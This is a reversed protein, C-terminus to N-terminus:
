LNFRDSSWRAVNNEIYEGIKNLDDFGRIIHDHYRPQWAFPINNRHAFRTVASKLSAIYSGLLTPVHRAMDAPEPPIDSTKKPQTESVARTGVTVIAHMHNPMVVFLPIDIHEHHRHPYSLEDSLFSGLPSLYMCSDDIEGFYHRMDKTCITIFYTSENYNFWQARPTKRIPYAKTM